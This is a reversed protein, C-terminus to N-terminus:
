ETGMASTQQAIGGHNKSIGRYAMYQNVIPLVGTPQAFQCSLATTQNTRLLGPHIVDPNTQRSRASNQSSPVSLM